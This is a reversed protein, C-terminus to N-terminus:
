GATYGTWGETNWSDERKDMDSRATAEVVEAVRQAHGRGHHGRSDGRRPEDGGCLRIPGRGDHLSGRRPSSAERTAGITMPPRAAPASTPTSATEPLLRVGSRDIGAETLADM